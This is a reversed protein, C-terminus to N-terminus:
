AEGEICAVPVAKYGYCLIGSQGEKRILRFELAVDTGPQCEGPECDAVQVMLRAGEPTEVLAVPYPAAMQFEDPAVHVVTSTVIKGRLSLQLTEFEVGGCGPCVRRRPYAVRACATCRGAELRYRSPIERWYRPSPM